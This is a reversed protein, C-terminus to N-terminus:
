KRVYIGIVERPLNLEDYIPREGVYDSIFENDSAKVEVHGWRGGSYVIIAGKPATYPTMENYKPDELLNSFGLEKWQTGSDRAAIGEPYSESFGGAVVGRKVYSLCYGTPQTSNKENVPPQRRCFRKNRQLLCRDANNRLAAIMNAVGASSSYADFESVETAQNASPAAAEVCKNIYAEVEVGNPIQYNAGGYSVERLQQNPVVECSFEVEAVNQELEAVDQEAEPSVPDDRREVQQQNCTVDSPALTMENIRKALAEGTPMNELGLENTLQKLKDTIDVGSFTKKRGNDIAHSNFMLIMLTSFFFFKIRSESTNIWLVRM